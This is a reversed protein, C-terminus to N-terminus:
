SGIKGYPQYDYVCLVATKGNKSYPRCLRYNGDKHEYRIEHTQGAFAKQLYDRERLDPAYLYETKRVEKKEGNRIIVFGDGDAEARSNDPLATDFPEDRRQRASFQLYVAKGGINDPVIIEAYQFASDDKSMLELIEQAKKIYALDFRYDALADMQAPSDRVIREASRILIERKKQVTLYNGGFLLTALLPFVALLLYVTKRDYKRETERGREAILTLNLMINLMLAGAMVAFIGFISLMFMESVYQRFVKLGFVNTLILAFVWYVLLIVAAIGVINTAKVLKKM